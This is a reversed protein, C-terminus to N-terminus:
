AAAAVAGARTGSGSTRTRTAVLRRAVLWGAVMVVGGAAADFVFHNGTAVIIFLMAAPYVAGVLRVVPNTALAAVVV